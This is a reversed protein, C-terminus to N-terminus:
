PKVKASDQRATLRKFYYQTHGPESIVAFPEWGAELMEDVQHWPRHTMEWIDM